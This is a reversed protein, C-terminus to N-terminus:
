PHFRGGRGALELLLPAPEFRAGHRDRLRSLADVAARPGMADLARLPGGRFPPFGIGFVAGVDADRASRVVGDGLARAAENCLALSLREAMEARPLPRRARGGPLLEYVSEDVRKQKGDYTYFGKGNKRGLRGAAVVARLAEPPRMRDGFGAHLIRGVKEGVDIGVEDLLAIPGVPFGYGTLAADLEDIAAGEALLWAAEAMYPGLIRNVYFGPADGVRIVTKGQRKGLAVATAVVEPATAASPIVELLPMKNVPSFYHMGVVAEPRRAARAIDAIPISSTNSAFIGRPNVAEFARVMEQKLALDEFVAEVLLDVGALGEWGTTTTLLRATALRELRDISRRKVREDLITGVSALARACAADDKERLRVPLGAAVTVYAIGSGMLGGGLVGVREVPRPQVAPDDVGSDKKIATSAFFIEVLRRSVDSVALEGFARAELALGAPVGREYGHRVAELAREPAPYQGRTKRLLQKRAQSFLLARGVANEELLAQQVRALGDAPPAGRRPRPLDGSALARARAVAVQRLLPPPVAEDVLGLKLAKRAKVTKGALILDLAAAIGVLRPLRQTGGAGPLLGLQVEPLGLTTKPDSAAVRYHCAMALELGGGLCAGHIAAVVPKGFAELRDFGAQAKRSLAEAEAAGAVARIMEIRAGAVFGDQKGSALVVARVAPDRGLRALLGDLEDGVEASLTNVREGPVDLLLTAVGDELAVTFAPGQGAPAADTTTPEGPRAGGASREPTAASTNGANESM